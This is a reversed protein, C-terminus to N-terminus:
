NLDDPAADGLAAIWADLADTAPLELSWALLSGDVGVSYLTRDDPALELGTVM